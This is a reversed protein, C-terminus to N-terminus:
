KWPRAFEDKYGSNEECGTLVLRVGDRERKCCLCISTEAMGRLTYFLYFTVCSSLFDNVAGLKQTERNGLNGPVVDGGKRSIAEIGSTENSGIIPAVQQPSGISLASLVISTEAQRL